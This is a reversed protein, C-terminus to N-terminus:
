AVVCSFMNNLYLVSTVKVHFSGPVEQPTVQPVVM